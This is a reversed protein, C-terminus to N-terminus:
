YLFVKNREPQEPKKKLKIIRSYVLHVSYKRHFTTYFGDSNQELSNLQYSNTQGIGWLFGYESQISFRHFKAYPYSLRIGALPGIGQHQFETRQRLPNQFNVRFSHVYGIDAGLYIDVKLAVNPATPLQFTRTIFHLEYGLNAVRYTLNATQNLNGTLGARMAHYKGWQYNLSVNYPHITKSFTPVGAGISLKHQAYSSLTFGISLILIILYKM